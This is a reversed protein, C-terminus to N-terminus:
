SLKHLDEMLVVAPYFVCNATHWTHGRTWTDLVVKLAATKLCLVMLLPHAWSAMARVHILSPNNLSDAIFPHTIERGGVQQEKERNEMGGKMKPWHLLLFGSLTGASKYWTEWGGSSHSTFKGTLPMKKYCYFTSLSSVIIRQISDSFNAGGGLFHLPVTIDHHLKLM